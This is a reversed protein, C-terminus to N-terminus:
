QSQRYVMPNRDNSRGIRREHAEFSEKLWDKRAHTDADLLAIFEPENENQTFISECAFVLSQCKLGGKEAIKPLVLLEFRIETEDLFDRVCPLAPDSEHDAVIWLKYNQYDLKTLSEICRQLTPDLGRVCLIIAVGPNFGDQLGDEVQTNKALRLMFYIILVLQIVLLSIAAILAIQSATLLAFDMLVLYNAM